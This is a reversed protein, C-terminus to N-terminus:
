ECKNRNKSIRRQFHRHTIYVTLICLICWPDVSMTATCCGFGVFFFTFINKNMGCLSIWSWSQRPLLIHYIIYVIFAKIDFTEGNQRERKFEVLNLFKCICSQRHRLPYFNKVSRGFVSLYPHYKDFYKSAHRYIQKTSVIQYSLHYSSFFDTM